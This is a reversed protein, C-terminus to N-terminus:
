KGDKKRYGQTLDTLNEKSSKHRKKSIKAEQDKHCRSCLGSPTELEESPFWGECDSCIKVKKLLINCVLDCLSM